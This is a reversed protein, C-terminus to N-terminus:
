KLFRLKYRTSGLLALLEDIINQLHTSDADGIEKRHDEVWSTLANLEGLPESTRSALSPYSDIIGFDGQYAEAFSDVLPIIGEYLEGLAVHQAYSATKLHAIHAVTRLNFCRAILEAAPVHQKEM